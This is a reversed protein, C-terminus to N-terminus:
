QKSVPADFDIIEVPKLALIELIEPRAKADKDLIRTMIINIDDGVWKPLENFPNKKINKVMKAGKEHEFPHKGTIMEYLIVGLAWIDAKYGHPDDRLREPPWYLPTGDGNKTRITGAGFFERVIGFDGIKVVLSDIGEGSLFINEPKM